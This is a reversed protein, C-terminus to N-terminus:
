GQTLKALKEELLQREEPKTTILSYMVTDKPFNDEFPLITKGYRILGKGQGSDTVYKIQEDSIHLKEQLIDRDGAAQNLMYVFDSNDLINEIEPSTLLDKVNQTIGTPVGGWKRFRKWMEVSYKATQEDRLLLHFEDIYYLTKKNQERNLSVRNWVQDQLILMAIKKLQEGLEKIDYCVLRNEIDVNTRNNFLNQSGSVYMELSNAVRQAIDGQARLAKLLDALTPMRRRIPSHTLFYNYVQRTAIDIVTKEEAELGFKGGVVLECLSILFNSKNAIKDEEDDHINIDMPNIFQTSNSSIKIVQGGLYNVLPYYEGEPDTIVIDSLTKLYRDIIERKVSFSKGSGPTGFILGNPNKLNSRDAMIMNKTLVNLGYYCGQEQYLEQTTFPIFVALASTPLAREIPVSNYGIPLFSAFAQEQMYDLPFLKCSKQQILRKLQEVEIMAKKESKSYNRVTLTINFLRENRSNLDELLENLESIYLKIQQPLIDTDYGAISAKKQEDVKMKEVDSLKGRVLKLAKLQDFSKIHISVSIQSGCDLLECLMRDSLEGALIDVSTIFGYNDNLEFKNKRFRASMPAIFDKTSYGGKQKLGWDFIFRDDSSPNLSRYLVELRQKGDLIFAKVSIESFLRVIEKAISDLKRRAAKISNESITFTLFKRLVYGSKGNKRLGCLMDSYEKRVANFRDNQEVIRIKELEEDLNQKQNEYSFQFDISDDFYNLIGCWSSFIGNKEDFGAIEYNTDFFEITRSFRGEKVYCIGDKLMEIYPIISQTATDNKMNKKKLVSMRKQIQKQQEKTLLIPQKKAKQEALIDGEERIPKQMAKM